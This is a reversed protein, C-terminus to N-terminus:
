FYLACSFFGEGPVVTLTTHEQQDDFLSYTYVRCGYTGSDSEQVQRITLSVDGRGLNGLLQYRESQRSTVLTGDTEILENGCDFFPLTGLGWCAYLRGHYNVDYTCMLMVDSGVTATVGAYVDGSFYSSFM